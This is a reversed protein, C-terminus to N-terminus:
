EAIKNAIIAASAGAGFGNDINVVLLGPSCSQLMTILAGKGKEGMGYGSSIPVGIVPVDVLAAVVGPLTGEMGACVIIVHVGKKIMNSLPTFIRHLGAIGVDYSSIVECGMAKTIVEAEIAIPIDSSGATIIGVIGRKKPFSHNYGKIVIIKALENIDIIYDKSNGFKEFLKRKQDDNCRSIIAFNKSKLFGSTIEILITPDKNQAFIVEPVGTRTKRLIDLKAVDGIEEIINVRLLKEADELSIKKDILKLLIDRM